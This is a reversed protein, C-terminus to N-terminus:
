YSNKVVTPSAFIRASLFPTFTDHIGIFHCRERISYILDELMARSRTRLPQGLYCIRLLTGARRKELRVHFNCQAFELLSM